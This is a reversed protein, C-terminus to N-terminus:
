KRGRSFIAELSPREPPAAQATVFDDLRPAFQNWFTAGGERPLIFTEANPNLSGPGAARYQPVMWSMFREFARTGAVGYEPPALMQRAAQITADLQRFERQAPPAMSDVSGRALLAADAVKLGNGIQGFVEDLPVQQGNAIRNAMDAFSHWDTEGDGDRVRNFTALMAASVGPPLTPDATVRQAFQPPLQVEGTKPDVLANLYNVTSHNTLRISDENRQRASAEADMNRASAMASIYGTLGTRANDDLLGSHADLLARALAEDKDAASLVGARVVETQIDRTISDRIADKQDDPLFPNLSVFGDIMDPAVSVGLGVAGPDSSALATLGDKFTGLNTMLRDSAAQNDDAIQRRVTYDQIRIAADRMVEQAQPDNVSNVLDVLPQAPDAPHVIGEEEDDYEAM